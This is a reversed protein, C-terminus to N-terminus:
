FALFLPEMKGERNEWQIVSCPVSMFYRFIGRFTRDTAATSVKFEEYKRYVSKSEQLDQLEFLM